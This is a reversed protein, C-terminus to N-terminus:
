SQLLLLNAETFLMSSSSSFVNKLSITIAYVLMSTFYTDSIKVIKRYFCLEIFFENSYLLNSIVYINTMRKQPKLYIKEEKLEDAMGINRWIESDYRWAQTVISCLYLLHALLFLPWMWTVNLDWPFLIQLIVCEFTPNSALLWFKNM